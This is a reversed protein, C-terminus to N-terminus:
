CSACKREAGASDASRATAETWCDTWVESRTEHWVIMEIVTELRVDRQREADGEAAPPRVPQAFHAPFRPRNQLRRPFRRLAPAPPRLSFTEGEDHGVVHFSGLSQLAAGPQAFEVRPEAEARR